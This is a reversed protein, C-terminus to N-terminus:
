RPETAKRARVSWSGENCFQITVDTVPLDAFLSLAQEKTWYHSIEPLLQDFVISHVHWFRAARLLRLYPHRHPWLKVYGYLLLSFPLTLCEVLRVPLKSTIRRVLNIAVKAVTHGERAHVWVLITGGPRAARVLNAMAKLPDKLHHIVGISLVIDFEDEATLDYISQQFVRARDTFSLNERAVRVTRPDLDFAVVQAAGYQLPWYSNRGIGCGADLIRKGRFDEPALGAVWARFFQEYEPIIRPFRNWEFGFRESSAM